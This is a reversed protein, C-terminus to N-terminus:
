LWDKQLKECHDEFYTAKQVMQAMQERERAFRPSSTLTGQGTVMGLWPTTNYVLETVPVEPLHQLSLDQCLCYITLIPLTKM